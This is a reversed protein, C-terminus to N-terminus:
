GLETNGSLFHHLLKPSVVVEIGFGFFPLVVRFGIVFGGQLSAEDLEDHSWDDLEAFCGHVVFNFGDGLHGGAEVDGHFSILELQLSLM